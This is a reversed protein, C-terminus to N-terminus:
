QAANREIKAKVKARSDKVKARSDIYKWVPLLAFVFAGGVKVAEVLASNLAEAEENSLIGTLALVPILQAGVALWFETTKYGAKMDVEM